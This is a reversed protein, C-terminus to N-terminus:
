RLKKKIVLNEDLLDLHLDIPINPKARGKTHELDKAIVARKPEIEACDKEIDKLEKALEDLIGIM